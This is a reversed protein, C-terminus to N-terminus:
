NLEGWLLKTKEVLTMFESRYEYPDKGMGTKANELVSEFSSAAM